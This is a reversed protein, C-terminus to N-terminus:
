NFFSIIYSLFGILLLIVSIVIGAIAFWKGSLKKNRNIEKLGFIGLILPILYLILFIWILGITFLFDGISFGLTIILFVSIFSLASLKSIM